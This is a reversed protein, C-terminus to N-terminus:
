CVAEVGEGDHVGADERGEEAEECQCGEEFAEFGLVAGEDGGGEEEAGEGCDGADEVDEDDVDDAAGVGRDLAGGDPDVQEEGAFCDDQVPTM